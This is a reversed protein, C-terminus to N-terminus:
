KGEIKVINQGFYSLQVLWPNHEGFDAKPHYAMFRPATDSAWPYREPYRWWHHVRAMAFLQTIKEDCQNNWVVVLPDGTSETYDLGAGTIVELLARQQSETLLPMYRAVWAPDEILAPVDTAISAKAGTELKFHRIMRLCTAQRNDARNSLDGKGSLTVELRDGPALSIGSLVLTSTDAQYQATVDLVVGNLRAQVAEPKLFGRFLLDVTRSQPVLALAGQAPGITLTTGTESWKQTMPTIAYAADLYANTNGEDEYLEFQGDAGPFVHVLLREPAEINDHGMLPGQPIISGAKAFVPIDRLTGYVAHWNDGPYYQGNFYDYWDGEPLWAVARSLRTDADKPSIFPAVVMQSGFQYQNPCAYAEEQEPHEYYMPLLPPISDRHYRWAMSYLYPILAHRLQLAARAAVLTEADYGWPAREHYPNKTSHLRLVPLFAGLQVWRTYLEADEVGGM